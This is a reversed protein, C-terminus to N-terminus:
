RAAESTTTEAVGLSQSQQQTDAGEAGAAGAADIRVTGFLIRVRVQTVTSPDSEGKVSGFSRSLFVGNQEAGGSGPTAGDAAIKGGLMDVQVRVSHSSPLDISNSGFLQWVEIEHPSSDAALDSLDLTTSGALMVVARDSDSGPDVREVANGFPVFRSNEPLVHTFPAFILAIVGLFALFGVPGTHRGRIGAVILSVALVALAGILGATLTLDAGASLSLAWVSAAGAALLALALTLVIHAAGIRHERHYQQGLESWQRAEMRANRSWHGFQDAWNPPQEGNLQEADPQAGGPPQGNPRAGNPETPGFPAAPDAPGAANAAGAAAGMAAGSAAFASHTPPGPEAPVSPHGPGYWGRPGGPRGGRYQSHDYHYRHRDGPHPARDDDPRRHRAWIVVGVIVAPLIIFFWIISFTVRLWEPALGSNWPGGFWGGTLLTPLLGGLLPLAVLAGLIVVAVIVGASARGRILEELHIRGTFDPLLLWAALYLLIGPGGLIALVVFVGRVILPDIGAKAAIGGAVGAFWRDSGRVIGLGRLWGFFRDTGRPPAQNPPDSPPTTDNM